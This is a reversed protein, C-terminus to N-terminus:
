LGAVGLAAELAALLAPRDNTNARQGMSIVLARLGAGVPAENRETPVVQPRHPKEVKVAAAGAELLLRRVAEVRSDPAEIPPRLRYIAGELDGPPYPDEMGWVEHTEDLTVLQRSDL